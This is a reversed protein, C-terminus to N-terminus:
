ERLAEISGVVRRVDDFSFGKAQVLLVSDKVKRHVVYATGTSGGVGADSFYVTLPGREAVNLETTNEFLHNKSALAIRWIRRDNVVAPEPDVPTKTYLIRPVDAYSLAAARTDSHEKLGAGAGTLVQVSIFRGPGYRATLDGEGGMAVVESPGKPFRVKFASAVYFPFTGDELRTDPWAVSTAVKMCSPGDCRRCLQERKCLADSPYARQQAIAPALCALSLLAAIGSRIIPRSRV